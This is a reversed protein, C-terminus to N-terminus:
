STKGWEILQNFVGPSIGSKSVAEERSKGQRLLKIADQVKKWITSGSKIQGNRHAIVLGAVVANADDRQVSGTAVLPKTITPTVSETVAIEPTTTQDANGEPTAAPMATQAVDSIVTETVVLKPTVSGVKQQQNIPKTLPRNVLLTAPRESDPKIVLSTYSPQGAAPILKFQYQKQGDAGSTLITIQTSGDRSSTLHPFNIPQIQRLFLVTAGGDCEQNADKTCLNGNSTFGIRSPDGIWVQKITEGTPIFNITVGYGKWIRLEVSNSQIDQSYITRSPIALVQGANM